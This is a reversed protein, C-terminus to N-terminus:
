HEDVEDLFEAIVKALEEPYEGNIAHSADEFLVMPSLSHSLNERGTAMAEDPHHMTSKGALIGLVPIQLSQLDDKSLLGPMPTKSKFTRMGTEILAGVPGAENVEAGGSIYSLVEEHISTPIFPISAPISALIMTFPISDFVYVPDVLVLSAIKDQQHLALNAANWGGFSLGLVHLQEHPLQM